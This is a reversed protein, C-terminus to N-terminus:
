LGHKRSSKRHNDYLGALALQYKAQLAPRRLKYTPTQLGNEVTWQESELLVAKPIEYPKLGAQHAATAVSSLVVRTSAPSGCLESFPLRQNGVLSRLGSEEPVVVAVLSSEVSSGAVFIQSVVEAKSLAAEVKDPAIYEGQALKFISKKRDIIKLTGNPLMEGVDGTHFWGDADLVEATLEPQKYYGQFVTPGRICIEGQPPVSRANYKMDPISELRYELLPLPGGVTGVTEMTPLAMFSCGCTETLGYGQVVPACFTVKLFEEIHSPLPASGSAMMRVRGGMREKVQSFVLADALPCAKDWRCGAKMFNQKILVAGKFIGQRLYSAKSLKENVGNFVREFVRPVGPFMTPTLELIDEMLGDIQGRWYGISGGVALFLEELARDFIHALPLYSLLVDDPSFRQEFMAGIQDLGAMCGAVTSLLNGHSLMVGKPTGTTGSTYMITCLDSKCARDSPTAAERGKQM